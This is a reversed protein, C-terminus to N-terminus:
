SPSSILTHFSFPFVPISISVNSHSHSVLVSIFISIPIFCLFPISVFTHLIHLDVHMDMYMQVDKTPWHTSYMYLVTCVEIGEKWKAIVKVAVRRGRASRAPAMVMGGEAQAEASSTSSLSVCLCHYGLVYVYM